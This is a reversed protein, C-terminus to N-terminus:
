KTCKQCLTHKNTNVIKWFAMREQECYPCEVLIKVSTKPPLEWVSIIGGRYLVTDQLVIMKKYKEIKIVQKMKQQLM